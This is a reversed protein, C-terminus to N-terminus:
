NEQELLDIMADAVTSVESLRYTLNHVFGNEATRCVSIHNGRRTIIFPQGFEAPVTRNSM